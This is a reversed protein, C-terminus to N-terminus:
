SKKEGRAVLVGSDSVSFSSTLRRYVALVDRVYAQTEPYPPVTGGYKAVAGEGANYAALMLRLDDGYRTRLTRLYAASARLNTAADFLGQEPNHVGFRKGTAPMVQMVGRAGAKSVARPNHRSEIHAIAHLLLPDIESERAADMLAPALSMVRLQDRSPPTAPVNLPPAVLPPVAANVAPASAAAPPAITVALGPREYLDLQAARHVTMPVSALPACQASIMSFRELSDTAKEGLPGACPQALLPGSAFAAAGALAM